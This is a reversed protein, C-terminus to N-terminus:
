FRGRHYSGEKIARGLVQRLSVQKSLVIGFGGQARLGSSAKIARGLIAKVAGAEVALLVLVVKVSLRGGKILRGGRVLKGGRILRGGGRASGGCACDLPFLLLGTM